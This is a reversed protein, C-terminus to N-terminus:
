NKKFDSTDFTQIVEIMKVYLEQQLDERHEAPVQLLSSKLKPTFCELIRLTAERDDQQQAQVLLEALM